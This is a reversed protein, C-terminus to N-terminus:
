KKKEKYSIKEEKIEKIAITTLKTNPEADVLKEGGAGLELARRFALIVTKYASRAGKKVLSQIPTYAM